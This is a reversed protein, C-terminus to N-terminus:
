EPWAPHGNWGENLSDPGDYWFEKNGITKQFRAGLHVAQFMFPKNVKKFNLPCHPFGEPIYVFSPKTIVHKEREPGLCLEIEANFSGFVDPLEGGLFAFYEPVNHTHPEKELHVNKTIVQWGMNLNSGPIQSAGRFYASPSKLFDLAMNEKLGSFLYKGYLSNKRDVAEDKKSKRTVPKGWDPHGKWGEPSRTPGEWWYEKGAQIKHFRPGLHIAQFLLPKNVVRFEMPTHPFGKPIFVFTPENIIHWEKEPGLRLEIEADFSSFPDLLDTGLFVFYEDCDHIHPAREMYVPAKIVQWGMNIDAGPIQWAGRFYAQPQDMFTLPMDDRLDSYIYKGYKTKGM